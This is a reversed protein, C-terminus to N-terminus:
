PTTPATLENSACDSKTLIPIFNAQKAVIKAKLKEIDTGPYPPADSAFIIIGNPKIHDLALNLAEASAEPCEGGGDAKLKKLAKVLEDRESTLAELRVDDRFGVLAVYAGLKIGVKEVARTVADLEDQMSGTTDLLIVADVKADGLLINTRVVDKAEPYNTGTVKFETSLQLLMLEGLSVQITDLKVSAGRAVTGLACSIGGNGTCTAPIQTATVGNPLNLSFVVDTVEADPAKDSLQVSCDYALNGFMVAPSPKTKCTASLYPRIKTVTTATAPTSFQPSTLTVKNTLPAASLNSIVFSVQAAGGAALNDIQCEFTGDNAACAVGESSTLNLLGGMPLLNKLIGSMAQDAGNFIDVTYTINEGQNPARPNVSVKLKTDTVPTFKVEVKEQSGLEVTQPMFILGAKEATVEYEGETLGKIEWYGQADPTASLEGVKVTAGSITNGSNNLLNGYVQYLPTVSPPVVPPETPPEIPKVTGTLSEIIVGGNEDRATVDEGNTALITQREETNSFSLSQEGGLQLLKFNVTMFDFPQTSLPNDWAGAAFNIEGLTNDFSSELGVDFATGPTISNVQLQTPNFNIYGAGAVVPQTETANIRLTVNFNEGIQLTTPLSSIAFGVKDRNGDRMGRRLMGLTANLTCKSVQKLNPQLLQMDLTDVQGDRNFDARKDGPIGKGATVISYDAVTVKNDDNSDGELLTGFDVPQGFPQNVRNALTTASKACIYDDAALPKNLTLTGKGTNDSTTAFEMATTANGVSVKLV